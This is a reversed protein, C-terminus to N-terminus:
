SNEHETNKFHKHIVVSNILSAAFASGESFYLVILLERDTLSDGSLFASAFAYPVIAILSLLVYFLVWRQWISETAAYILKFCYYLAFGAPMSFLISFAFVMASALFAVTLPADIFLIVIAVLINATLYIRFSLSAMCNNETTTTQKYHSFRNLQYHSMTLEESIRKL